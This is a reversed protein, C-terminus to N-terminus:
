EHDHYNQGPYATMPKPDVSNRTTNPARGRRCADKVEPESLQHLSTSRNGAKLSCMHCLIVEYAISPATISALLIACLAFFTRPCPAFEDARISNYGNEYRYAAVHFICAQASNINSVSNSSLIMLRSQALSENVGARRM